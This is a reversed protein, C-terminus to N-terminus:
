DLKAIGFDIVKVFDRAGHKTDLFVNEPKLDRHIIERAHAADLASAIQELISAARAPAMPGGGPGHVADHVDRGVLLEMVFYVNDRDEIFDYVEIVHPHRITNAAKAEHFFRNIIGRDATLERQLMKIAVMRGLKLHVGRYVAGMGGDGLRQVLRYSGVDAVKPDPAPLARGDAGCIAVQAEYRRGCGACRRTLPQM